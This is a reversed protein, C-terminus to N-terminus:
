ALIRVGGFTIADGTETVLYNTEDPIDGFQVLRLKGEDTIIWNGANSSAIYCLVNWMTLDGNEDVPYDVPFQTPLVTRSDVELGMRNAIDNVADVQSMPWNLDSYSDNLWVENAKLMADFATISLIGTRKDKERRSIFFEGKKIWESAQEGFTLRVFVQIKAARPITDKQLLKLELTRSACNGFSPKEFAGGYIRCYLFGDNPYEAKLYEVGAVDIKTEVRHLPNSWLSKYLESTEHM